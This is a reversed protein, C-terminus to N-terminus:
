RQRGSAEVARRAHERAELELRRKDDVWQATSLADRPLALVARLVRQEAASVIYGIHDTANMALVEQQLGEARTEIMSVVFKWGPHEVLEKLVPMADMVAGQESQRLLTSFYPSEREPADPRRM